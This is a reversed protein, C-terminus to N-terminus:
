AADVISRRLRLVPDSEARWREVEDKTRYTERDGVGADPQVRDVKVGGLPEADAHDVLRRVARELDRAV